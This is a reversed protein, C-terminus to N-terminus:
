KDFFIYVISVLERQYGDYKWNKAINFAKDRLIKDSIIRRTLNKFDGYVMDHQFCDTDLENQYFCLDWTEKFTGM